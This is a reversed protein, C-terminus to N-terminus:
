SSRAIHEALEDANMACTAQLTEVIRKLTAKERSLIAEAQNFCERLLVEVRSRLRGDYKLRQSLEEHSNSTLYVLSGDMGFSAIMATAIMTAQHLDSGPASGGFDGFEGMLVREAALGGLITTIIALYTKPTRDFGPTNRYRTHGHGMRTESIERFVQIEVPV